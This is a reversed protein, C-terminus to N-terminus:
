AQGVLVQLLKIAVVLIMLIDVVAERVQTLQVLLQLLHEKEQALEEEVQDVRGLLVALIIMLQVVAVALV